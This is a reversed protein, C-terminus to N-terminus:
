FLWQEMGTESSKELVPTQNRLQECLQTGQSLLQEALATVTLRQQEWTEKERWLAAIAEHAEALQAKWAVEREHAAQEAERAQALEARLTDEGPANSVERAAALEALLQQERMRLERVTEQTLALEAAPEAPIIATQQRAEALQTRLQETEQQSNEREQQQKLRLEDIYQLVDRRSFGHFSTKFKQYEGM